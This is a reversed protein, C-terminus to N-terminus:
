DFLAVQETSEEDDVLSRVLAAVHNIDGNWGVDALQDAFDSSEALDVLPNQSVGGLVVVLANLMSRDLAEVDVSIVARKVWGLLGALSDQDALLFARDLNIGITGLRGAVGLLDGAGYADLAKSADEYAAEVRRRAKSLPSSDDFLHPYVDHPALQGKHKVFAWDWRGTEIVPKVEQIIVPTGAEGSNEMPAKTVGSLVDAIFSKGELYRNTDTTQTSM